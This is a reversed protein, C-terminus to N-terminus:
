FFCKRGIPTESDHKLYIGISIEHSGYNYAGLQTTSYDYAYGVRFRDTVFFEVMGVIANQQELNKQLNPKAYLHIGTRYTGGLWLKEGLLVFANLDLSTPGGRDDKILFSPKFKTDQDIDMLAGATFYFHPMPVPVLISKDRPLMHALLNDASLGAFWHDNSYMVGTRADPMLSSQLGTPVAADNAQVATLKTGDLTGQVLGLGLGLSLRSNENDGVQLRYAYNGYAALSSQAGIKDAALLVGLGVKDDHVAGDLAVSFSQPAGPFGTWQSRYFSHLYLDKKYGAYAPNIYLGNFIYQSYQADQQAKAEFAALFITILLWLKKM